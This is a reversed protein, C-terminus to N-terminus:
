GGGHGCRLPRAHPSRIKPVGRLQDLAIRRHRHRDQRGPDHRVQLDCLASRDNCAQHLPPQHGPRQKWCVAFHKSAPRNLPALGGGNVRPNPDGMGAVVRRVGAKILADSCPPTKGTHCCPELTVYVDAGRAADGAMELAHIEAHPGGAKKHWGEGVIRGDKVIVCGVAPNPATRGIGKRALTLARKMYKIDTRTM